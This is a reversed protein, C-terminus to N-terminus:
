EVAKRVLEGVKAMDAASLDKLGFGTPWMAGAGADLKASDTFGLTAYRTKFKSAPQVFCVVKADGAPPPPNAYAPMGYWLRPWLAPANAAIIAHVRQAIARDPEPLKALTALVAQAGAAKNKGARAEAKLERAREKMAAKEASSFGESKGAVRGAGPKSAGPSKSSSKKAM